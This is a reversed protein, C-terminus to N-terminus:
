RAINFMGCVHQLYTILMTGTAVMGMGGVWFAANIHLLILYSYKEQDMFYETAIYIPPRSQSKNISLVFYRIHPWIQFTIIVFINCIAFVVFCIFCSELM